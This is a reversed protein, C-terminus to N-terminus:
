REWPGPRPGSLISADRDVLLTQTFLKPECQLEKERCFRLFEKELRELLRLLNRQGVEFNERTPCSLYLRLPMPAECNGIELFRSGRGRLRVKGNCSQAITKMNQGERGYLKPVFEFAQLHEQKPLFMFESVVAAVRSKKKQPRKNNKWRKENQTEQTMTEFTPNASEGQIPRCDAVIQPVVPTEQVILKEEVQVPNSSHVIAEKIGPAVEGIFFDKVILGPRLPHHQAAKVAGGNNKKADSRTARLGTAFAKGENVKPEPIGFPCACSRPASFSDAQHTAAQTGHERKPTGWKQVEHGLGACLTADFPFPGCSRPAQSPKVKAPILGPPMRMNELPLSQCSQIKEPEMHATPSFPFVKNKDDDELLRGIYGTLITDLMSDWAFGGSKSTMPVEPASSGEPAPLTGQFGDHLESQTFLM